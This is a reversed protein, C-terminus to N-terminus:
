SASPFLMRINATQFTSCLIISAKSAGRSEWTPVLACFCARPSPKRMKSMAPVAGVHEVYPYLVPVCCINETASGVLKTGVGGSVGLGIVVAGISGIVAAGTSGTIVSAGMSIVCGVGTASGGVGGGTSAGGGLPGHAEPQTASSLCFPHHELVIPHSPHVGAVVQGCSQSRHAVLACSKPPRSQPSQVPGKPPPGGGVGVGGVSGIVAAGISGVGIVEAGISGVGIVEAGITGVGIVEAGTSIVTGVGTGGGGLPGHAEPQTASSLCFPHHELVIPHSPHV